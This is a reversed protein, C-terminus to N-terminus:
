IDDKYQIGAKVVGVVLCILALDFYLEAVPLFNLLSFLSGLGLLFVGLLFIKRENLKKTPVFIFWLTLIGLFLNILSIKEM